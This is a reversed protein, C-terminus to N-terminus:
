KTIYRVIDYYERNIANSIVENTVQVGKEEILFKVIDLKGFYAASSLGINMDSGHEVLYKVIHLHGREVANRIPEEENVNVNAGNEILMKVINLHGALSADSLGQTADAGHQLLIYVIDAYGYIAAEQIIDNTIHEVHPILYKVIDIDGYKIASLLHNNTVITGEHEICYKVLSLDGLPLNGSKSVWELVTAWTIWWKSLLLNIMELNDVENQYLMAKGIFSDIEIPIYNNLIFTILQPDCIHGLYYVDIFVNNLVEFSVNFHKVIYTFVATSRFQVAKLLAYEIDLNWLNDDIIYKVLEVNDTEIAYEPTHVLPDYSQYGLIHQYLYPDLKQERDLRHLTNFAFANRTYTEPTELLTRTLSRRRKIPEYDKEEM